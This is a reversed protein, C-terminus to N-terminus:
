RFLLAQQINSSMYDCAIINSYNKFGSLNGELVVNLELIFFLCCFTKVWVVKACQVLLMLYSKSTCTKCNIFSYSGCTVKLRTPKYLEHIFLFCCTTTVRAPKYLEHIILLSGTTTVSAPKYYLLQCPTVQKYDEHKHLRMVLAREGTTNLEQSYTRQMAIRQNPSLMREMALVISSWQYSFSHIQKSYDTTQYIKALHM